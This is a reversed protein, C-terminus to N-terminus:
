LILYLGKMLVWDELLYVTIVPLFTQNQTKLGMSNLILALSFNWLNEQLIFTLM